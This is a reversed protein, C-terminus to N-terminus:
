AVMVDVDAGSSHSVRYDCYQNCRFPQFVIEDDQTYTGLDGWSEAQQFGRIRGQLVIEFDTGTADENIAFQINAFSTINGWGDRVGGGVLREGSIIDTTPSDTGITASLM